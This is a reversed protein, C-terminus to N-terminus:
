VNPKNSEDASAQEFGALAEPGLQREIFYLAKLRSRQKRYRACGCSRCRGARLVAATMLKSKNCLSCVVRWLRDSHENTGAHAIVKLAGYQNGMLNIFRRGKRRRLNRARYGFSAKCHVSCFVVFGGRGPSYRRKPQFEKGCGRCIWKRPATTEM